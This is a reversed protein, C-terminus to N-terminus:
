ACRSGTKDCVLLFPVPWNRKFIPLGTLPDLFALGDILKNKKLTQEVIEPVHDPSVEQYQVGLPDIAMVPAKACLGHCGTPRVEIEQNLGQQKIEEDLAGKVEAAGYARCGTMCVYVRTKTKDEQVFVENQYHKLDEISRFKKM